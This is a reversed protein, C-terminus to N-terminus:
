LFICLDTIADSIVYIIVDLLLFFSIMLCIAISLSFINVWMLDIRRRNITTIRERCLPCTPNIRCWEKICDNHYCHNCPAKYKFHVNEFTQLCISCVNELSELDYRSPVVSTVAISFFQLFLILQMWFETQM